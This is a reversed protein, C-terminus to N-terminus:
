MTHLDIYLYKCQRQWVITEQKLHKIKFWTSCYFRLLTSIDVIYNKQDLYGLVALWRQITVSTMIQDEDSYCTEQMIWYCTTVDHKYPAPLSPSPLSPSIQQYIPPVWIILQQNSGLDTSLVACIHWSSVCKNMPSEIMPKATPLNAHKTVIYLSSRVPLYFLRFLLCM